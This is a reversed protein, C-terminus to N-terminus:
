LYISLYLYGVLIGKGRPRIFIAFQVPDHCLLKNGQINNTQTIASLPQKSDLGGSIIYSTQTHRVFPNVSQVTYVGLFGKDRPSHYHGHSCIM